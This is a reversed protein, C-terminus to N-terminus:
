KGLLSGSAPAQNRTDANSQLLSAKMGFGQAAQAGAMQQAVAIDLSSASPPPPPVPAKPMPPLIFTPAPPPSPISPTGGGGKFNALIPKKPEFSPFRVGGVAGALAMEPFLFSISRAFFAIVDHMPHTYVGM